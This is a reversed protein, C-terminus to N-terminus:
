IQALVFHMSSSILSKMMFLFLTISKEVLLERKFCAVIQIFVFVFFIRM